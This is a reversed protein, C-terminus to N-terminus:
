VEKGTRHVLGRQTIAWDDGHTGKALGKRRLSALANRLEGETLGIRACLVAFPQRETPLGSLAIAETVTLSLTEM